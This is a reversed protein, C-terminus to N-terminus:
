KFVKHSRRVHDLIRYRYPFKKGCNEIPCSFKPLVGCELTLHRKLSSSLKYKRKQCKWCRFWGNEIDFSDVRRVSFIVLFFAPILAMAVKIWIEWDLVNFYLENRQNTFAVGLREFRALLKSFKLINLNAVFSRSPSFNHVAMRGRRGGQICNSTM